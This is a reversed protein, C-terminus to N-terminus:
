TLTLGSMRAIYEDVAQLPIKYHNGIRFCKIDGKKLLAYAGNRSINLIAALEDISILRHNTTESM